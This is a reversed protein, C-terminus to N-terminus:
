CTILGPGSEPAREGSQIPTIIGAKWETFLFRGRPVTHNEHVGYGLLRSSREIM